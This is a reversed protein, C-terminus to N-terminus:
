QKNQKIKEYTRFGFYASVVTLLLIELLSIYSEKVDFNISKISDFIIILSVFLVLYMLVLPRVSKSLWNDSNMDAEWRSTVGELEALDFELLKLAYQKDAETLQNAGKIKDGLKNLLKVNTIDGALSVVEGLIDPTKDKLFKFVKTDKFRKKEKNSKEDKM